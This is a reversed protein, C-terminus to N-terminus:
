DHGTPKPANNIKHWLAKTADAHESIRQWERLWGQLPSATEAADNLLRQAREILVLVLKRSEDAKAKSDTATM